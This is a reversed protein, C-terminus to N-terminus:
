VLRLIDYASDGAWRSVRWPNDIEISIDYIKKMLWTWSKIKAQTYYKGYVM